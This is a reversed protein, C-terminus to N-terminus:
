SVLVLTTSAVQLDYFGPTSVGGVFRAAWFAILLVLFQTTPAVQLNYLGSTSVGGIFRAKLFV